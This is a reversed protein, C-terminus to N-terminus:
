TILTVHRALTIQAPPALTVQAHAALLIHAMLSALIVFTLVKTAEAVGTLASIHPQATANIITLLVTAHIIIRIAIAAKLRALPKFM